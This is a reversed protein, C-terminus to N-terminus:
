KGLLMMIITFASHGMLIYASKKDQDDWIHLRILAYAIVVPYLFWSLYAVRNSFSMANVLVWVSNSLIYTIALIEFTRNRIMRKVSVYYTLIVPVSSYLIFDWRFGSRSFQSMDQQAAYSGARVDQASLYTGLASQFFGGAVLSAFISAIWIYIAWKPDKIFFYAGLAAMIPLMVTKHIGFAAISMIAVLPIIWQKETALLSFAFLLLHLALGNRIGNVGYTFFSYASICFLMAMWTNEWLLKRCTAYLFSIYGIEIVFFYMHYNLHFDRCREIIWANLWEQQLSFRSDQPINNYTHKYFYSDGFQWHDPRLGMYLMIVVALIFAPWQSHMKLLNRNNNSSCYNLGAYMCFSFVTWMFAKSYISVPVFSFLQELEM